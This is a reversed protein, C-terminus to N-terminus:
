NADTWRAHKRAFFHCTRQHYIKHGVLSNTMNKKRRRESLCKFRRIVSGIFRHNLSVIVGHVLLVIVLSRIFWRLLRVIFRPLMLGVFWRNLWATNLWGIFCHIRSVIFWHVVSGNFSRIFSHLLRHAHILSSYKKTSSSRWQAVENSLYRKEWNYEKESRGRVQAAEARLEWSGRRYSRCGVEERRAALVTRRAVQQLGAYPLGPM